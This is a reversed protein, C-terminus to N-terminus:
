YVDSDGWSIYYNRIDKYSEIPKYTLSKVIFYISGKKEQFGFNLLDNAFFPLFTTLLSYGSQALYQTASILLSRIDGDAIIEMIHAIQDTYKKLVILGINNTIFVYKDNNFHKSYRKKFYYKDRLVQINSIANPYISLNYKETAQFINYRVKEYVTQNLDYEFTNIPAITQWGLYKDFIPYSIKNPFGFLFEYGYNKAIEYSQKSARTFIGRKQYRPHVMVDKVIGGKILRGYYNITLACICATGIIDRGDKAALIVHQNHGIPSNFSDKYYYNWIRTMSESFVNNYLISIDTEDGIEYEQYSIGDVISM